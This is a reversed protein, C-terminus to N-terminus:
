SVEFQRSAEVEARIAALAAADAAQDARRAAAAIIEEADPDETAAAAQARALARSAKDSARQAEDALETLKSTQPAGDAALSAQNAAAAAHDVSRQLARQAQTPAPCEQDDAPVVGTAVCAGASSPEMEGGTSLAVGSAVTIVAAATGALVWKIRPRPWRPAPRTPLPDTTTGAPVDSLVADLEARSEARLARDLHEVFADYDLHGLAYNEALVSVGHDREQGKARTWGPVRSTRPSETM